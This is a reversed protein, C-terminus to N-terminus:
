FNSGCLTKLAAIDDPSPTLNGSENEAYMISNPNTNHGLGVAHGLEHALVRELQADGIFEYINIREGASDRVFEGEEFTHGSTQNYQAVEANVANVSANYASVRANFADVTAPTVSAREAEISLREADDQAQATAIEAGLTADAQRADYVLNIKLAAKPDYSFLERGAATDWIQAAAAADRELETNTIGFRPDVTGLAYPIPHACPQENTYVSYVGMWAVAAVVLFLIWHIANYKM